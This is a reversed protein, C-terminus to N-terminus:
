LISWGIINGMQPTSPIPLFNRGGGLVTALNDGSFPGFRFPISPPSSSVTSSPIEKAPQIAEQAEEM